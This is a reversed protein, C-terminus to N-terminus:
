KPVLVVDKINLHGVSGDWSKSSEKIELKKKFFPADLVLSEYEGGEGMPHVRLKSIDRIFEENIRRGLWKEDLGDAAVKVIIANFDKSIEKLFERSDGHWLPAISELGLDKCIGDIRDKQYKSEVAGSCVGEIKFKKKVYMLVKRLDILEDEKLGATDFTVLPLGLAEAQLCVLEVSDSHFMFSDKNRSMATIVCVFENDRSLKYLALLSDKGGSVLGALRM